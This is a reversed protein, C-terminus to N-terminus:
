EPGERETHTHTHTHTYYIYEQQLPQHSLVCINVERHTYENQDQKKKSDVFLLISFLAVKVLKVVQLWRLGGRGGVGLVPVM